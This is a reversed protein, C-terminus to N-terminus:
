ASSKTFVRNNHWGVCCNDLGLVCWIPQHPTAHFPFSVCVLQGAPPHLQACRASKPHRAGMVSVVLTTAEGRMPLMCSCNATCGMQLHAAKVLPQGRVWYGSAERNYFENQSRDEHNGRNMFVFKPFMIKLLFITVVVELGMGGRDVFDGNFFYLNSSSPFGNTELIHVLDKLHGHLDGVILIRSKAALQISEVPRMTDRALKRFKNLVELVFRHSVVLLFPPDPSQVEQGICANESVCQVRVKSAFSRRVRFKRAAHRLRRCASAM